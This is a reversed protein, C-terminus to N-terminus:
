RLDRGAGLGPQVFKSCSVPWTLTGFSSVKPLNQDATKTQQDEETASAAKIINESKRGHFAENVLMNTVM